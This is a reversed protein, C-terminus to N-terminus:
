ATKLFWIETKVYNPANQGDIFYAIIFDCM